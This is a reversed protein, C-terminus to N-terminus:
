DSPLEIRFITGVGLQSQCIIKGGHASIIGDVIFLGVGSGKEKTTYFPEFIHRAESESIGKGTDVVEIILKANDSNQTSIVIEKKANKDELAEVSNLILNILCQKLQDPDAKLIFDRAKLKKSLGIKQQSLEKEFLFIVSEIVKHMNVNDKLRPVRPKAVDMLQSVIDDLRDIELGVVEKYKQRFEKVDYKEDLYETFTKIATLPNRLEHAVQHALKGTIALKEL